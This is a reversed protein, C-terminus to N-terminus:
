FSYKGSVGIVRPEGFQYYPEPAYGNDPNNGFQNSFYFGRGYYDEDALNRGWLAVEWEAARYGLRANFLHYATSREDHSNSFYFADRAELELRAFWRETLDFETGLLYQYNPAHALDRGRM